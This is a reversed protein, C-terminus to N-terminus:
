SHQFFFVVCFWFCCFKYKETLFAKFPGTSVHLATAPVWAHPNTGGWEVRKGHLFAPLHRGLTALAVPFCPVDKQFMMKM